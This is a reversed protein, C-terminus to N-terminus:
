VPVDPVVIPNPLADDAAKTLAKVEKALDALEQSTGGAAIADELEKVKVTLADIKKQADAIDLNTQKASVIAEKLDAVVEALVAMIKNETEKLDCKTALGSHSKFWEAEKRIQERHEGIACVLFSVQQALHLTAQVQSDRETIHRDDDHDPRSPM